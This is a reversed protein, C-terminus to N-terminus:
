LKGRRKLDKLVAEFDLTSPGGAEQRDGPPTQHSTVTAPGGRRKEPVEAELGMLAEGGRVELLGPPHPHPHGEM